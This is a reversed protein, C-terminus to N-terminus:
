MVLKKYAPAETPPNNTPTQSPRRRRTDKRRAVEPVLGGREKPKGGEGTRRARRM